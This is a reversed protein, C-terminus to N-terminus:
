YWRNSPDSINHISKDSTEDLPIESQLIKIKRVIEERLERAIRRVQPRPIGYEDSIKTYGAKIEAPTLLSLKEDEFTDQKENKITDHNEDEGIIEIM